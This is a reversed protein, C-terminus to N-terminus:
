VGTVYVIKKKNMDVVVLQCNLNEKLIDAYVITQSLDEHREKIKFVVDNIKIRHGTMSRLGCSGRNFEYIKYMTQGM